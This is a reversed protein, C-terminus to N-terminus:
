PNVAIEIRPRRGTLWAGITGVGSSWPRNRGLREHSPVWDGHVAASALSTEGALAAAEHEIRRSNRRFEHRNTSFTRFKSLFTRIKELCKTQAGKTKM